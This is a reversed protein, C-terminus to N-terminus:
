WMEKVYLNQFCNALREMDTTDCYTVIHPVDEDSSPPQRNLSTDALESTNVLERLKAKTSKLEKARDSQTKIDELGQISL